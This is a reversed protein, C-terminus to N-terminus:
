EKMEQIFRSPASYRGNYGSCEAECIYLEDKARTVSVYALRREEEMAEKTTAKYFPFVGENMGVCFVTDFELGKASHATLLSVGENKCDSSTLTSVENVFDLLGQSLEKNLVAEKAMRLLEHVNDLRTDETTSPRFMSELDFVNSFDEFFKEASITSLSEQLKIVQPLIEYFDSTSNHAIIKSIRTHSKEAQSLYSMLLDNNIDLNYKKCFNKYDVVNDRVVVGLLSLVTKIERRQYFSPGSFITYPINDKKLAREIPAALFHARYIIAVESFDYIRENEDLLTWYIQKLYCAISEAVDDPTKGHIEEVCKWPDGREAISKKEIRNTNHSILHNAAEVITSMSRYNTNMYITKGQYPKPFDMFYEMKAGRWSYIMQDPDGVVFLNHKKSALAMAFDYQAGSVDQFEDVMIYDFRNAWYEKVEPYKGFLYLPLCILDSFDLLQAQKQLRLYVAIVNGYNRGIHAVDSKNKAFNEGYGREETKYQAIIQKLENIGSASYCPESAQECAEKILDEMDADDIVKYNKSWGIRALEQKLIKLGLSHFTCVYEPECNTLERIRGKMEKAAKNTFTVCAIRDHSINLCKVLYAFRYTLARTKGSGASAVVRVYGETTTVAEHQDSDLGRLFRDDNSSTPKTEYQTKPTKKNKEKIDIDKEDEGAERHLRDSLTEFITETTENCEESNYLFRKYEPKDHKIEEIDKKFIGSKVPINVIKTKTGEIYVGIYTHIFEELSKATIEEVSAILPVYGPLFKNQVEESPYFALYKLMLYADSLDGVLYLLSIVITCADPTINKRQEVILKILMFTEKVRWMLGDSTYICTHARQQCLNEAMTMISKKTMSADEIITVDPKIIEDFINDFLCHINSLEHLQHKIADISKEPEDVSNAFQAYNVDFAHLTYAEFDNEPTIVDRFRFEKKQLIAKQEDKKRDNEWVGEANTGRHLKDLLTEFVREPSENCKKEADIAYHEYEEPAASKLYEVDSKFIGAGIPVNIIPVHTNDIFFSKKSSNQMYSVVLDEIDTKALEEVSMILQAYRRFFIASIEEQCYLVLYQLLLYADSLDGSACLISVAVSCVSNGFYGEGSIGEKLKDLAQAYRKGNRCQLAAVVYMSMTDSEGVSVQTNHNKMVNFLCDFACHVDYLEYVKDEVDKVFEEPKDSAETYLAYNLDFAHLTYKEFSNNPTIVSSFKFDPRIAVSASQVETQSVGTAVSTEQVEAVPEKAFKEESVSVNGADKPSAVNGGHKRRLAAFLRKFM